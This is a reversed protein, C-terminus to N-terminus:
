NEVKKMKVKNKKYQLDLDKNIIDIELKKNELQKKLLDIKKLSENYEPIVYIYAEFKDKFEDRLKCIQEISDVLLLNTLSLKDKCNIIERELDEYKYSLEVTQEVTLGQRLGRIGKNILNTGLAMGFIRSNSVPTTLIGAAVRLFSAFMRGYGTINVRPIEVREIVDVRSKIDDLIKRQEILEISVQNEMKSVKNTNEKNKNFAITRTKIEEKKEEIEFGVKISKDNEIVIGDIKKIENKCVNVMTEIEDLTANDQYDEIADIIKISDLIAFDSFNYKDKVTDFQRKLKDVKRRLEIYRLEIKKAEELTYPKSVEDKIVKVEEKIEDLIILSKDIFIQIEEVIVKEDVTKNEEQEIEIVTDDDNKISMGRKIEELEYYDYNDFDFTEKEPDVFVIRGNIDYIPDENIMKESIQHLEKVDDTDPVSIDKQKRNLPIIPIYFDIKRIIKKDEDDLKNINEIKFDKLTKIHMIKNELNDKTYFEKQLKFKEYRKRFIISILRDRISGKAGRFGSSGESETTDINEDNYM